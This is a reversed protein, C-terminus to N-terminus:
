GEGVLNIRSTLNGEFPDYVKSGDMDNSTEIAQQYETCQKDLNIGPYAAKLRLLYFDREGGTHVMTHHISYHLNVEDLERLWKEVYYAPSGERYDSTGLIKIVGSESEELQGFLDALIERIGEHTPVECDTFKYPGIQGWEKKSPAPKASKGSALAFRVELTVLRQHVAQHSASLSVLQQGLQDLRKVISQAKKTKTAM